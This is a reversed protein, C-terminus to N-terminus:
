FVNQETLGCAQGAGCASGSVSLASLKQMSLDVHVCQCALHSAHLSDDYDTPVLPACVLCAGSLWKHSAHDTSICYARSEFLEDLKSRHCLM